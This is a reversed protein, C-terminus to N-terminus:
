GPKPADARIGSGPSSAKRCFAYLNQVAPDDPLLFATMTLADFATRTLDPRKSLIHQALECQRARTEPPESLRISDLIKTFDKPEIKEPAAEALISGLETIEPADSFSRFLEAIEKAAGSALANNKEAMDRAFALKESDTEDRVFNRFAEPSIKEPTQLLLGFLDKAAAVDTHRSLADLIEESAEGPLDPRRRAIDCALSFKAEFMKPFAPRSSVGRVFERFHEPEIADAAVDLLTGVLAGVAPEHGKSAVAFLIEKVASRVFEPKEAMIRQATKCREARVNPNSSIGDLDMFFDRFSNDSSPDQKEAPEDRCTQWFPSQAAPKPKRSFLDEWADRQSTVANKERLLQADYDRRRDADGLVAWADNIKKQRETAEPNKNRDPHNQLSLTRYVKRIDAYSADRAVGLVQYLDENDM